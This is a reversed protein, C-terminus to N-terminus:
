GSPSSNNEQPGVPSATVPRLLATSEAAAGTASSFFWQDLLEREAAAMPSTRSRPPDPVALEIDGHRRRPSRSRTRRRGRCCGRAASSVSPSVCLPCWAAVALEVGRAATVAPPVTVHRVIHVVADLVERRGFKWRPPLEPLPLQLKAGIAISAEEPCRAPVLVVLPDGLEVRVVRRCTVRAISGRVARCPM